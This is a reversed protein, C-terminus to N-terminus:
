LNTCQLPSADKFKEESKPFLLKKESYPRNQCVFTYAPWGVSKPTYQWFGSIPLAMQELFQKFNDIPWLLGPYPANHWVSETPISIIISGGIKVAKKIQDIAFHPNGIHELTELFFAVDFKGGLESTIKDSWEEHDLDVRRWTGPCLRNSTDIDAGDVVWYNINSNLRKGLFGLGGGVDVISINQIANLGLREVLDDLRPGHSHDYEELYGAQANKTFFDTVTPDIM